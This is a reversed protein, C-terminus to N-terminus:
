VLIKSYSSSFGNGTAVQQSSRAHKRFKELRTPSSSCTCFPCQGNGERCCTNLHSFSALICPLRRGGGRPAPKLKEESSAAKANALLVGRRDGAARLRNEEGREGGSSPRSFFASLDECNNFSTFSIPTPSGGISKTSPVLSYSFDSCVDKRPARMSGVRGSRLRCSKSASSGTRGAEGEQGRIVM